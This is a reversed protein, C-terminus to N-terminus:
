ESAPYTPLPTTESTSVLAVLLVSLCLAITIVVLKLGSPYEPEDSLKDLAAADEMPTEDIIRKEGHGAYTTTAEPSTANDYDGKGGNSLSHDPSAVATTARSSDMVDNGNHGKSRRPNLFKM